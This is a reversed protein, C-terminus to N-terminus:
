RTWCSGRGCRGSTSTSPRKAGRRSSIARGVFSESIFSVSADCTVCTFQVPVPTTLTRFNRYRVLDFARVTGDLSSSVIAHGGRIYCLDTVAATHESFTVYCFGSTMSWLKIKGDDGGTVVVSGDPSFELAGINHYHGQQKLVYTESQWEWVLLQGLVACGFALWDGSRNIACSSISRNSISLTHILTFGPMEYLSFVGNALGVILLHAHANFDCSTASYTEGIFHRDKIAWKGHAYISVPFESESEEEESLAKLKEDLPQDENPKEDEEEESDDDSSDDSSDDDSSDDDDSDKENQDSSTNTNEEKTEEKEESESDESDKKEEKESKSEESEEKDSESKKEETVAEKKEEEMKEEDMKEKVSTIKGAKFNKGRKMRRQYKMQREWEEDSVPKWEWEFVAGNEAVSVISHDDETFYAGILSSRHGSLTVPIFGEKNGVSFIRVNMDASATVLYEGDHSWRVSNITDYHRGIELYLEFPAFHRKESPTWWLQLKREMAVAILKDDPSFQIDTVPKEFAFRYLVIRKRLNAFVAKGEVDVAIMFRGNNSVCIRSIDMRTEMPLTYSTHNVLEFVSVRNGVPSYLVNGDPSYCVNGCKFVTGCLNTFKYSFKM